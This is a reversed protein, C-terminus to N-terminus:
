VPRITPFSSMIYDRLPLEKVFIPCLYTEGFITARVITDSNFQIQKQPSTEIKQILKKRADELNTEEINIICDNGELSVFWIYNHISM